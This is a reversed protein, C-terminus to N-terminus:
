VLNSDITKTLKTFKEKFSKEVKDPMWKYIKDDKDDGNIWKNINLERETYPPFKANQPGLIDVIEGSYALINNWSKSTINGLDLDKLNYSSIDELENVNKKNCSFGPPLLAKGAGAPEVFISNNLLYVAYNGPVPYPAHSGRAVAVCPHEKIKYVDKWLVKVRGCDWKQLDNWKESNYEDQKVAGLTQGNLHAGYIVYEPKPQVGSNNKDWNFVISISERDFIHSTKKIEGKEELKPDYAYLFHYNIIVQDKKSTNPIHSYYITVNEPDGKRKELANRKTKRGFLKILSFGITDLVSKRNGNFPLVDPLDNYDM